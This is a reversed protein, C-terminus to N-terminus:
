HDVAKALNDSWCRKFTKQTTHLPPPSPKPANARVKHEYAFTPLIIYEV